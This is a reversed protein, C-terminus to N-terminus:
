SMRESLMGDRLSVPEASLVIEANANYLRRYVGIASCYNVNRALQQRPTLLILQRYAQALADAVAYTAATHDMISLLCEALIRSGIPLRFARRVGRETAAGFSVPVSSRANRM